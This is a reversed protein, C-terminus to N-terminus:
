KLDFLAFTQGIEKVDIKAEKNGAPIYCAIVYGHGEGDNAIFLFNSGAVVQQTCYLPTVPILDVKNMATKFFEVDSENPVRWDSFSGAAM